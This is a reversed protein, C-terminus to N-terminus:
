ETLLTGVAQPSSPISVQCLKKDDPCDKPNNGTKSLWIVRYQGLFDVHPIRVSYGAARIKITELVGACQMQEMTSVGNLHLKKRNPHPKICRIWHPNTSYIRDMLERLSARFVSSVTVIKKATYNRKGTTEGEEDEVEPPPLLQSIIANASNATCEKIKNPLTDLNKERMGKAGYNVTKAYHKIAFNDPFRPKAFSKSKHKSLTQQM